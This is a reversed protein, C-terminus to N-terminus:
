CHGCYPVRVPTFSGKADTGIALREVECIPARHGCFSCVPAPPAAARAGMAQLVRRCKREYYDRKRAAAEQAVNRPDSRWRRMYDRKCRRKLADRVSPSLRQHTNEACGRKRGTPIIASADSRAPRLQRLQGASNRLSIKM